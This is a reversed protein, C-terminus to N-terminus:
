HRQLLLVLTCFARVVAVCSSAGRRVVTSEDFAGKFGFSSRRLHLTSAFQQSMPCILCGPLMQKGVQVAIRERVEQVDKKRFLVEVGNLVDARVADNAGVPRQAHSVLM